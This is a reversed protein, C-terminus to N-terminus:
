IVYFQKSIKLTIVQLMAEEGYLEKTDRIKKQRISTEMDSHANEIATKNLQRQNLFFKENNIVEQRKAKVAAIKRIIEEQKLLDFENQREEYLM